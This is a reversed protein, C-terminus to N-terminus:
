YHIGRRSDNIGGVFKMNKILEYTILGFESTIIRIMLLNKYTKYSLSYLILCFNNSYFCSNNSYRHFLNFNCDFNRKTVLHSISFM